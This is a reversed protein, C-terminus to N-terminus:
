KRSNFFGAPCLEALTAPRGEGDGVILESAALEKEGMGQGEQKYWMDKEMRLHHIKGGGNFHLIKPSTGFAKNVWRGNETEMEPWPDCEALPRAHTAHMAQFIRNEHDLQIGYRGQMYFDSAMEQDNIKSVPVNYKAAYSPAVDILAQFIDKANLAKM